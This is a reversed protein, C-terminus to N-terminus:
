RKAQKARKATVVRALRKALLSYFRTGSEGLELAERQEANLMKRLPADDQLIDSLAPLVDAPIPHDRKTGATWTDLISISIKRDTRKTLEQCLWLRDIKKARIRSALWEKLFGDLNEARKLSESTQGDSM